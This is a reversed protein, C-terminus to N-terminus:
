KKQRLNRIEELDLKLVEAILNEDMGKALMSEAIELRGKLERAKFSEEITRSLNSIM